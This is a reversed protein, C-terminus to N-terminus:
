RVEQYKGVQMISHMSICIYCSLVDLGGGCCSYSMRVSVLSFFLYGKEKRERSVHLKTDKREWM